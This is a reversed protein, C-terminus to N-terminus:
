SPVVLPMPAACLTARQLSVDIDLGVSVCHASSVSVGVARM